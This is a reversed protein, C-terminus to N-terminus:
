KYSVEKVEWPSIIKKRIYLTGNIATMEDDVPVFYLESLDLHGSNEVEPCTRIKRQVIFIVSCSINKLQSILYVLVLAWILKMKPYNRKISPVSKNISCEFQNFDLIM